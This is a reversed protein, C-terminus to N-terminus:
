RLNLSYIYYLVSNSKAIFKTFPVACKNLKKNDPVKKHFHLIKCIGNSVVM